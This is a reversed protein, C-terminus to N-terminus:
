EHRGSRMMDALEIAREGVQAAWKSDLMEDAAKAYDGAQIAAWMNTFGLLRPLGLNFLMNIVVVQRVQNLSSYVPLQSSLRLCEDIDHELMLDAEALTIGRDDLNRGYGITSKNATCKYLKLSLGEHRKLQERVLQRYMLDRGNKACM